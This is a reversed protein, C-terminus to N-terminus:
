RLIWSFLNYTLIGAMFYLINEYLKPMCLPQLSKTNHYEDLLKLVDELKGQIPHIPPVASYGKEGLLKKVTVIEAFLENFKFLELDQQKMPMGLNNKLDLLKNYEDIKEQFTM